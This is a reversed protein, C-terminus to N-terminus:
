IKKKILNNKEDYSLRKNGYGARRRIWSLDRKFYIKLVDLIPCNISEPKRDQFLKELILTYAKTWHIEPANEFYLRRANKGLTERLIPDNALM